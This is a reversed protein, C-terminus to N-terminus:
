SQEKLRRLQAFIMANSSGKFQQQFHPLDWRLFPNVQKELGITTPVTPRNQSRQQQARQAYAQLAANDPEVSRAFKLNTLTYEHACWVRTADPLNRFRTLSDVAQQPTGEFLRGCGASFIVDGSFLDGATEGAQPPFYYAIHGLTHGPVFMVEAAYNAFEVQDGDTLSVQQGPIRSRQHDVASGYVVVDPFRSRLQRNGGVHDPHHHTNFIAVLTADLEQLKQLVPKAEGPDVVAATQTTRDYLLFIYNDRFAPLQYIEM